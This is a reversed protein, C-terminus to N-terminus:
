NDYAIFLKELDDLNADAWRFYQLATNPNLQNAQLLDLISIGSQASRYDSPENTTNFQGDFFSNAWGGYDLQRAILQSIIYDQRVEHVVLKKAKFFSPMKADSRIFCELDRSLVMNSLIDNFVHRQGMAPAESILELEAGSSAAIALSWDSFVVSETVVYLERFSFLTQTMKIILEPEIDAWNAIRTAFPENGKFIHSGSASFSLIHKCYSSIDNRSISDAGLFQVSVGEHFDWSFSNLKNQHSVKIAEGSIVGDKYINGLRVVAGNRVQFYDGPYLHPGPPLAPIFGSTRLYTNTYFRKYSKYM